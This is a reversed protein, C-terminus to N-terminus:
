SCCTSDSEYLRRDLATDVSHPWARAPLPLVLQRDDDAHGHRHHARVAPGSSRCSSFLSAVEEPDPYLFATFSEVAFLYNFVVFLLTFLMCGLGSELLGGRAPAHPDSIAQSSTIWIFFLIIVTGQSELLPIHLVGHTVLLIVLPIFLTTVFGTSWTLRSFSM